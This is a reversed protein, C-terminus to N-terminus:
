NRLETEFTFTLTVTKGDPRPGMKTRLIAEIVARDFESSGSAAVIRPRLLVGDARLVFEVRAILNTPVGRPENLAARLSERLKAMYAELEPTVQDTNGSPASTTAGTQASSSGSPGWHTDVRPSASSSPAPRPPSPKVNTVPNRTSTPTPKPRPSTPTPKVSTHERGPPQVVPPAPPASEVVPTPQEAEIPRPPRPSIKVQLGTDPTQAPTASPHVVDFIGSLRPMAIPENRAALAFLVLVVIVSAHLLVALFAAPAYRSTMFFEPSGPQKQGSRNAIDM